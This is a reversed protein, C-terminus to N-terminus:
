AVFFLYNVRQIQVRGPKDKTWKERTEVARCIIRWFAMRIREEDGGVRAIWGRGGAGEGDAVDGTSRTLRSGVGKSSSGIDCRMEKGMM